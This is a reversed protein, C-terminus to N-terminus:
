NPLEQDQYVAEIDAFHERLWTLMGRDHSGNPEGMLRYIHRVYVVPQVTASMSEQVMSAAVSVIENLARLNITNMQHDTMTPIILRTLKKQLTIMQQNIQEAIRDDAASELRKTTKQILAIYRNIMFAQEMRPAPITLPTEVVQKQGNPDVVRSRLYIVRDDVEEIDLDIVIREDEPEPTYPPLVRLQPTAPADADTVYRQGRPTLIVGDSREVKAGAALAREQFIRAAREQEATARHSIETLPQDMQNETDTM